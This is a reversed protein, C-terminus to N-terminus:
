KSTLCIGMAINVFAMLEEKFYCHGCSPIMRHVQLEVAVVGVMSGLDAMDEGGVLLQVLLIDPQQLLSLVQVSEHVFRQKNGLSFLQRALWFHM